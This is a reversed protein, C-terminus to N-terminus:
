ENNEERSEAILHRLSDCIISKHLKRSWCVNNKVRYIDVVEPLVASCQRSYVYRVNKEELRM